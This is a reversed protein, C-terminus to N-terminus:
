LSFPTCVLVDPDNLKDVLYHGFQFQKYPDKREQLLWEKLNETGTRCLTVLFGSPYVLHWEIISSGLAQVSEYFPSLDSTEEFSMTPERSEHSLKSRYAYLLNRHQCATWDLGLEPVQLLIGNTNKPWRRQVDSKELDRDLSLPGGSRWNRLEQFAYDRADDFVQESTRELAAVLHPLSIKENERWECYNGVFSAFAKGPSRTPFRAKALGELLSFYLIKRYRKGEEELTM